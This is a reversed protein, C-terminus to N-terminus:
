KASESPAADQPKATKWRCYRKILQEQPLPIKVQTGEPLHIMEDRPTEKYKSALNPNANLIAQRTAKPGLYFKAIDDLENKKWTKYVLSCAVPSLMGAALKYGITIKEQILAVFIEEGGEDKVPSFLPQPKDAKSDTYRTIQEILLGQKRDFSFRSSELTFGDRSPMSIVRCGRILVEARRDKLQLIVYGHSFVHFNGRMDADNEWAVIFLDPANKIWGARVSAVSLGSEFTMGEPSVKGKSPGAIMTEDLRIDSFGKFRIFVDYRKEPMEYVRDVESRILVKDLKYDPMSRGVDIDAMRDLHVSFDEARAAGANLAVIIFWSLLCAIFWKM